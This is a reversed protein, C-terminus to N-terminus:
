HRDFSQKYRGAAEVGFINQDGRQRFNMMSQMTEQQPLLYSHVKKAHSSAHKHDSRLEELLEQSLSGGSLGQLRGKMSLSTAEVDQVAAMSLATSLEVIAAALGM